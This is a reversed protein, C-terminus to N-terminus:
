EWVPPLRPCGPTPLGHRRILEEFLAADASPKILHGRDRGGEQPLAPLTKRRTSFDTNVAIQNATDLRSNKGAVGGFVANILSLLWTRMAEGKVAISVGRRLPVHPVVRGALAVKHM